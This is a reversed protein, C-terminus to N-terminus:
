CRIESWNILDAALAIQEFLVPNRAKADESGGPGTVRLTTGNVKEVCIDSHRAQEILEHQTPLGRETLMAKTTQNDLRTAGVAVFSIGAALAAAAMGSAFSPAKM